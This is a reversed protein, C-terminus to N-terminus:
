IQAHSWEAHGGQAHDIRSYLTEPLSLYPSNEHPQLYAHPKDM